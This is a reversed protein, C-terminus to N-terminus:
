SQEKKMQEMQDKVYMKKVQAKHGKTLKIGLQKLLFGQNGKWNDLAIKRMESKTM